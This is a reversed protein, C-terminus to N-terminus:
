PVHGTWRNNITLMPLLRPVGDVILACGLIQKSVDDLGYDFAASLPNVMCGTTMAWKLGAGTDFYQISYKSHHHGQVLSKGRVKALLMDNASRRHGHIFLIEQDGSKLLLQRHWTWGKPAGLREGPSKIYKKSLGHALAKREPLSGHNSELVEAVPFLRYIPKLAAVAHDHEDGSSPLDPDHDHFSDAHHDKEDGTLLVLDPRYKRKLATLFKLLDQHQSPAHLDSIILGRRFIRM